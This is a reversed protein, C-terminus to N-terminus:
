ITCYPVAQVVSHEVEFERGGHVWRKLRIGFKGDTQVGVTREEIVRGCLHCRGYLFLRGLRCRCTNDNRQTYPMVAMKDLGVGLWDIYGMQSLIADNGYEALVVLHGNGVLTKDFRHQTSCVTHERLLYDVSGIYDHGMDDLSPNWLSDVLGHVLKEFGVLGDVVLPHSETELYGRNVLIHCPVSQVKRNSSYSGVVVLVEIGLLSHLFELDEDPELVEHATVEAYRRVSEFAFQPHHAHLVQEIGGQAQESFVIGFTMYFQHCRHLFSGKGLVLESLEDALCPQILVQGCGLFSLKRSHLKRVAMDVSHCLCIISVLVKGSPVIWLNIQPPNIVEKRSGVLRTVYICEKVTRQVCGFKDCTYAFGNLAICLVPPKHFLRVFFFVRATERRCPYKRQYTFM